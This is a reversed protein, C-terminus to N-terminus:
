NRRMYQSLITTPYCLLSLILNMLYKCGVDQRALFSLVFKVSAEGWINVFFQPPPCYPIGLNKGHYPQLPYSYGLM